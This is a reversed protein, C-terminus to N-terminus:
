MTLRAMLLSFPVATLAQDQLSEIFIGAKNASNVVPILPLSFQESIWPFWFATLDPRGAIGPIPVRLNGTDAGRVTLAGCNAGIHAGIIAYDTNAILLDSAFNLTRAGSYTAAVTATTTDEVTVYEVMRADLTSLDILRADIGPLNPYYLMMTLMETQGAVASGAITVTFAEQPEAPEAWGPALLPLVAAAVHRVRLDRVQDHGSPHTVQAFGSVQSKVWMTLVSPEQGFPVNRVAPSDGAVAAAAAGAAGPATASFSVTDIAAM